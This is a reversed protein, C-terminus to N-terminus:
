LGASGCAPWWVQARSSLRSLRQCLKLSCKTEPAQSAFAAARADAYTSPTSTLSLEFQFGKQVPEDLALEYLKRLHKEYELCAAKNTYEFPFSNIAEM